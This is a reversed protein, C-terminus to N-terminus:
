KSYEYMGDGLWVRNLTMGNLKHKPRNPKQGLIQTLVTEHIRRGNANSKIMEIVSSDDREVKPPANTQAVKTQSQTQQVAVTDDADDTEVVDDLWNNILQCIEDDKKLMAQYRGDEPSMNKTMNLQMKMGKIKRIIDTPLEDMQIDEDRILAEYSPNHM